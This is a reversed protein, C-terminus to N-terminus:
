GLLGKVLGVMLSGVAAGGLLATTWKIHVEGMRAFLCAGVPVALLSGAIMAAALRNAISGNLSYFLGTLASLVLGIWISTGVVRQATETSTSLLAPVVLVGGGTGTSGVLAGTLAAARHLGLRGLAERWSPRFMAALAFIAAACTLLKLATNLTGAHQPLWRTIALILAAAAICLPVARWLFQKMLAGSANGARAHDVGAGIKCVFSFL